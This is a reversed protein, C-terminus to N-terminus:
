KMHWILSFPYSGATKVRNIDEKRLRSDGLGLCLGRGYNEINQDQAETISM